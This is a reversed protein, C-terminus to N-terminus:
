SPPTLLNNITHHIVSHAFKMNNIGDMLRSETLEPTILIDHHLCAFRFDEIFHPEIKLRSAELNIKKLVSERAQDSMGKLETRQEDRMAIRNQIRINEPSNKIRRITVRHPSQPAQVEFAFHYRDDMVVLRRPFRAEIWQAVKRDIDDQVPTIIKESTPKRWRILLVVSVVTLIVGVACLSVLITWPIPEKRFAAFVAKGISGAILIVGGLLSTMVINVAWNRVDGVLNTLM